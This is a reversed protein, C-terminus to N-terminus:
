ELEKEGGERRRKAASAVSLRRCGGTAVLPFFTTASGSNGEGTLTSAQPQTRWRQAAKRRQGQGWAAGSRPVRVM